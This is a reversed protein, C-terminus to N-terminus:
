SVLLDTELPTHCKVKLFIEPVERGIHFIQHIFKNCLKFKLIQNQNHQVM